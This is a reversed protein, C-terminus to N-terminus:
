FSKPHFVHMQGREHKEAAYIMRARVAQVSRDHQSQWMSSIKEGPSQCKAWSEGDSVAQRDELIFKPILDVETEEGEGSHISKVRLHHYPPDYFAPATQEREGGPCM